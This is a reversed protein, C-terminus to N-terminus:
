EKELINEAVQLGTLLSVGEGDASKVADHGSLILGAAYLNTITKGGKRVKFDSDTQVGYRMYPQPEFLNEKTWQQRDDGTTIDLNFLTEFVKGYNSNLDGSFFSGTALVFHDAELPEDQLNETYVCRLQDGEFEGKVVKNQRLFTGGVSQFYQILRTQILVGPVSPPMTAVFTIPAQVKQKLLQIAKLNAIGLVAPLLILEQEHSIANIQEAVKEVNEEEDLVKAINTARMESPNERARELEPTTFSKVTVTIGRKELSNKLFEVPFDLFGCINAIIVKQAPFKDPGELTIINDLTLWTPKVMGIPTLRFHNKGVQGKVTIGANALLGEAQKALVEIKKVGLKSYPHEPRLVKIAELPNNVITGSEDYGLLDFSGSNFHLSSQGASAVMVKQGRSALSIGCTLGTLGGGIIVTDYKM